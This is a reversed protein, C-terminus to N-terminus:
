SKSRKWKVAIDLNGAELDDAAFIMPRYIPISPDDIKATAGYAGASQTIAQFSSYRMQGDYTTSINEIATDGEVFRFVPKSTLEARLFALKGDSTSTILFGKQAALKSLFGFDTETM